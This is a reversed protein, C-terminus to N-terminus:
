YHWVMDHEDFLRAIDTKSVPTVGAVLDGPKIGRQELDERVAYVPIGKAVMDEIDKELTPPVELSAAGFRLGSADQGRVAYNTANGRLLASIDAGANKIMHTIWLVTDDQEELTGAYAHEVVSLIRAV